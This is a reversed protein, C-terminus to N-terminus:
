SLQLYNLINVYYKKTAELLFNAITVNGICVIYTYLSSTRTEGLLSGVSRYRISCRFKARNLTEIFKYYLLEFIFRPPSRQTCNTNIVSLSPRRQLMVTYIIWNWSPQLIRPFEVANRNFINLTNRLRTPFRERWHLGSSNSRKRSLVSYRWPM